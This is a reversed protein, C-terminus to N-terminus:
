DLAEMGDIITEQVATSHNLGFQSSDTPSDM